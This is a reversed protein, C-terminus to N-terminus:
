EGHWFVTDELYEKKFIPVDKKIKELIYSVGSIVDARSVSVAGVLLINDGPLLNGIRHIICVDELGFEEKAAEEISALKKEAMEMYAELELAVVNKGDFPSKVTGLFFSIAGCYNRKLLCVQEDISFDEEQIRIM